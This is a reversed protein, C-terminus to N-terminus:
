PWLAVIKWMQINSHTNGCSYYHIWHHANQKRSETVVFVYTNHTHFCIYFTSCRQHNMYSYAITELKVVSFAMFSGFIGNFYQIRDFFLKLSIARTNTDMYQCTHIQTHIFCWFRIRFTYLCSWPLCEISIFTMRDRTYPIGLKLCYVIEFLAIWIKLM